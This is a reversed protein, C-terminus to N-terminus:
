RPTGHVALSVRTGRGALVADASLRGPGFLLVTLLMLGWLYHQGIATEFGDSM